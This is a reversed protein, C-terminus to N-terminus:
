KEWVLILPLAIELLRLKGGAHSYVSGVFTATRVDEIELCLMDCSQQRWMRLITGKERFKRQEVRYAHKKMVFCVM